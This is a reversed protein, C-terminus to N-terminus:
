MIVKSGNKATELLGSVNIRQNLLEELFFHTSYSVSCRHEGFSVSLIEMAINYGIIVIIM